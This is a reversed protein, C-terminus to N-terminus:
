GTTFTVGLGEDVPLEPDPEPRITPPTNPANAATARMATMTANKRTRGEREVM